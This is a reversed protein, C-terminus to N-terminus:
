HKMYYSEGNINQWETAEKGDLSIAWEYWVGGNDCKRRMLLDFKDGRGLRHLSKLPILVPFWSFLGRSHHEPVTSLGIEGYLKTSFYGAFGMLECPMTVAFSLHSERENSHPSDRNPHKFTFLAQPKALPCYSQICAVYINDLNRVSERPELYVHTIFYRGDTTDRMPVARGYLSLARHWFTVTQCEINGRLRPAQIPAVYSTYSTPIFITHPHLISADLGDLCEPSLENDGFSGLLESVVLDPRPVDNSVILRHLHRMDSEILQVRKNWHRENMFRLTVMANVNKEVAILQLQFKSKV